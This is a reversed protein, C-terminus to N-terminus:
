ISAVLEDLIGIPVTINGSVSEGNAQATGELFYSEDIVTISGESSAFGSFQFGSAEDKSTGNFQAFGGGELLNLNEDLVLFGGTRSTGDSSFTGSTFSGSATANGELRLGDEIVAIFGESRSFGTFEFFPNKSTGEFQAFGGTKVFSDDLGLKLFGSTLGIGVTSEFENM